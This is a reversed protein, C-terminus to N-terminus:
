ELQGNIPRLPGGTPNRNDGMGMGEETARFVVFHNLGDRTGHEGTLHGANPWAKATNPAAFPDMVM